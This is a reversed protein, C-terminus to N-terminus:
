EPGVCVQGFKSLSKPEPSLHRRRINEVSSSVLDWPQDLLLDAFNANRDLVNHTGKEWSATHAGLSM